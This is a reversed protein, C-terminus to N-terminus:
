VRKQRACEKAARRKEAQLNQIHKYVSSMGYGTAEVIQNVTYGKNFYLDEIVENDVHVVPKREKLEEKPEEKPEEEPEEETEEKTLDDAQGNLIMLKEYSKKAVTEAQAKILSIVTMPNFLQDIRLGAETTGTPINIYISIPCEANKLKELEGLVNLAFLMDKNATELSKVKKETARMVDMAKSYNM